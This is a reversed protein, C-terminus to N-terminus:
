CRVVKRDKMYVLYLSPSPYGLEQLLQGYERLQKQHSKREKGTKYDIVIAKKDPTLIIKDPRYSQGTETVIASENLVEANPINYWAQVEKLALSAKIEREVQKKLRTPLVGNIIAKEIAFEVEEPQNINSWISHVANGYEREDLETLELELANKDLSLGLNSRWTKVKPGSYNSNIKQEEKKETKSREGLELRNNETDFDEKNIVLQNIKDFVHSSSRKSSSSIVYMRKEARTFAVYFLNLNDLTVDEKEKQYVSELNYQKLTKENLPAIYKPIEYEVLGETNIWTFDVFQNNKDPWDAFPMIVIPYQLGKSKHITTIQIASNNGGSNVPIRDKHDDFYTVFEQLASTNKKTYGQITNLLQDIYSDFRNLDFIELLYITKDYLNLSEFYSFNLTAYNEKLFGIFDISKSYANNKESPIRWKEHLASLHEEKQLFQLCKLIAHENELNINTEFFAIIFQVEESSGLVISDSSVVPINEETLHAAILKGDKNTKTLIAIDNYNFGDELCEKIYQLTLELKLPKIEEKSGELIQYSVYGDEKKVVEQEIGEYIAKITTSESSDALNSFLWNNFQIINKFSRYNNTLNDIDASTEFISNINYLDHFEGTIKPLDIFQNVEGGRWRYIAQKADGVILNKNGNSLSDYVLPVLNNWQLKSTDQFEDILFYHYRNGIKEYIFPAPENKVVQSIIENFDNLFVINSEQKISQLVKNISNLLSFGIFNKNFLRQTMYDDYLTLLMKTSKALDIEIGAIAEKIPAKASKTYWEEKILRNRMADSVNVSDIENNVFATYMKGFGNKGGALNWIEIGQSEILDITQQSLVEIQKKLEKIKTKIEKQIGIFFSLDVESLEDLANKGEDKQLIQSLSKLQKEIDGKESDDILQESFQILYNTLDKDNGVESLLLDISRGIFLNVDSELEFNMALGLERTFSRIIRHIFKDITLINFEGYHHIIHQFINASRIALQNAPIPVVTLYDNLLDSSEGTSLSKLTELVREKMENAAKNTFTVALIKRFLLPDKSNLLISIYEKVLTYTKGSGASSRFIKLPKEQLMKEVIFISNVLYM